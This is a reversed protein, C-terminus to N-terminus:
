SRGLERKGAVYWRRGERVLLLSFTLNAIGALGENRPPFVARLFGVLTASDGRVFPASFGVFAGFACQIKPNRPGACARASGPSVVAITGRHAVGILLKRDHMIEVGVAHKPGPAQRPDVALIAAPIPALYSTRIYEAAAGLLSPSSGPRIVQGAMGARPVVLAVCCVLAARYM